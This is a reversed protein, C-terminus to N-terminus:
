VILQLSQKKITTKKLALQHDFTPQRCGPDPELYCSQNWEWLQSGAPSWMSIHFKLLMEVCVCVCIQRRIHKCQIKNSGTKNGGMANNMIKNKMIKHRLRCRIANM